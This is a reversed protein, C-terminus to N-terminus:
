NTYKNTAEIVKLSNSITYLKNVFFRVTRKVSKGFDDNGYDNAFEKLVRIFSDVEEICCTLAYQTTVIEETEDAHDTLLEVRDQVGSRICENVLNIGQAAMNKEPVDQATQKLRELNLICGEIISNM